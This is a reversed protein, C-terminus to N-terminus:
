EWGGCATLCLATIGFRRSVMCALLYVVWEVVALRVAHMSYLPTSKLLIIERWKVALHWWARKLCGGARATVQWECEVCYVFYNARCYRSVQFVLRKKKYNSLAHPRRSDAATDFSLDLCWLDNLSSLVFKCDRLSVISLLLLLLLLVTQLQASCSCWLCTFCEGAHRIECLKIM